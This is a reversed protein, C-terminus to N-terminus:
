DDRRFKEFAHMFGSELKVLASRYEKEQENLQKFDAEVSLNLEALQKGAIAKRVSVYVESGTKVLIGEDLATYGIEGAETEYLLIGPVIVVVCDLRNPLIGFSGNETEAIIRTLNKVEACVQHPQLIKLSLAAEM